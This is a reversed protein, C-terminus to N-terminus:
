RPNYRREARWEWPPQFRGAWLGRKHAAAFDQAAVYRWGHERAYEGKFFRPDIVALGNQLLWINISYGRVTCRAVTRDFSRDVGLCSVTNTGIWERLQHLTEAGCDYGRGISNECRQDLEPADVTWLRIKRGGVRFTDGDPRGHWEAKGTWGETSGVVAYAEIDAPVQQDFPQGHASHTVVALLFGFVTGVLFSPWNM